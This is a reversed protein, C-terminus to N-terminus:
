VTVETQDSPCEPADPGRSTGRVQAPFRHITPSLTLYNRTDDAYKHYKIKKNANNPWTSAKSEPNLM